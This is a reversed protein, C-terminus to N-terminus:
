DDPISVQQHKTPTERGGGLEDTFSSFPARLVCIRDGRIRAKKWVLKPNVFQIQAENQVGVAPSSLCVSVTNYQWRHTGTLIQFNLNTRDGPDVPQIVKLTRDLNTESQNRFKAEICGLVLRTFNATDKHNKPVQFETAPSGEPNRIQAFLHGLTNRCRDHHVVQGEFKRVIFHLRM